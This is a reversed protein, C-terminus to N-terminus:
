MMKQPPESALSFIHRFGSHHDDHVSPFISMHLRSTAMLQNTRMDEAYVKKFNMNMSMIGGNLSRWRAHFQSVDFRGELGGSLTVGPAHFPCAVNLHLPYPWPLLM